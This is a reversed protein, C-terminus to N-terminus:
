AAVVVDPKVPVGEHVTDRVPSFQYGLLAVERLAEEDGDGAITITARLQGLGPRVNADLGFMGQLNADGELAVDIRTLHLGRVAAYARATATICSGVAAMLLEGPAPATDTSGLEVYEDSTVVHEREDEHHLEGDIEYGAVRTSVGPAGDRWRSRTFFTARGANRDQKLADFLGGLAATDFGNVRDRAADRDQESRVRAEGAPQDRASERGARTQVSM